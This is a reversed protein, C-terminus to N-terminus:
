GAKTHPCLLAVHQPFDRTKREPAVCTAVGSAQCILRAGSYTIYYHQRWMLHEGQRVVGLRGNHCEPCRGSAITRVKQPAQRERKMPELQDDSFMSETPVEDFKGRGM